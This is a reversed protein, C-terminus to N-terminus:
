RPNTAGPFTSPSIGIRHVWLCTTEGRPRGCVFGSPGIQEIYLTSNENLARCVHSSITQVALITVADRDGQNSLEVMRELYKRDICGLAGGKVFWVDGGKPMEVHEIPRSSENRGFLAVFLGIALVVAPIMAILGCGSREKKSQLRQGCVPCTQAESSIENHCERCEVLAMLEGDQHDPLQSAETLLAAYAKLSEGQVHAYAEGVM